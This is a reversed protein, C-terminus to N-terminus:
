KKDEVMDIGLVGARGWSDKPTEHIVVHLHDPKCAAEEVMAKTIAKVLRRKQEVTRGEWMEVVVFPM